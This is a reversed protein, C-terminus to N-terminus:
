FNFLVILFGFCTKYTEKPARTEGDYKVREEHYEVAEVNGSRVSNVPECLLQSASLDWFDIGGVSAPLRCYVKIARNSLTKLSKYISNESFELLFILLKCSRPNFNPLLPSYHAFRPLLWKKSIQFHLTVGRLSYFEQYFHFYIDYVTHVQLLEFLM